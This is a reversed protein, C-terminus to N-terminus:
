VWIMLDTPFIRISTSELYLTKGHKSDSIPLMGKWFLASKDWVWGLLQLTNGSRRSAAPRHDESSSVSCRGKWCSAAPYDCCSVKQQRSPAGASLTMCGCTVSLLRPERSGPSWHASFRRWLRIQSYFASHTHSSSRPKSHFRIVSQGERQRRFSRGFWLLLVAALLHATPSFSLWSEDTLAKRSRVTIILSLLSFYCFMM